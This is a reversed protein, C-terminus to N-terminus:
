GKWYMVGRLILVAIYNKSRLGTWPINAKNKYFVNSLYKKSKEGFKDNNKCDTM